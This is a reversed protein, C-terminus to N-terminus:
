PLGGEEQKTARLVQAALLMLLKALETLDMWFDIQGIVQHLLKGVHQACAGSLAEIDPKGLHLAAVKEFELGESGSYLFVFVRHSITEGPPDVVAHYLAM